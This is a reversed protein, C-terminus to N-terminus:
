SKGEEEIEDLYREWADNLAKKDECASNNNPISSDLDNDYVKLSNSKLNQKNQNEKIKKEKFPKGEQMTKLQYEDNVIEVQELLNKYNTTLFQQYRNHYFWHRILYTHNNCKDVFDYILRKKSLEELAEVYTWQLLTNEYDQECNDLTEILEKANGVFGMDDANVLFFFYLLKAKNSLGLKFGSVNLFGCNILRKTIM